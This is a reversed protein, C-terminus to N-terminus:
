DENGGSLNAVVANAPPALMQLIAPDKPDAPKLGVLPGM